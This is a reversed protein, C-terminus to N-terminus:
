PADGGGVSRSGTARTRRRSAGGALAILEGYRELAGPEWLDELAVIVHEVGARRLAEVRLVHDEVTGTVVPVRGRRPGAARGDTIQVTSLHTVEVEGPRPGRRRLAPAAGRADARVADPEGMVNCPTPTSRPWACPAREGGGGVLIPVHEQLPRPYCLAEPVDLM